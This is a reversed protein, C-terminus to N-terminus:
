HLHQGCAQSSPSHEGAMGLSGPKGLSVEWPQVMNQPRKHVCGPESPGLRGQLLRPHGHGHHSGALPRQLWESPSCCSRLGQREAAERRLSPSRHQPSTLSLLPGGEFGELSGQEGGWMMGLTCLGQWAQPWCLEAKIHVPPGEAETSDRSSLLQSGAKLLSSPLCM